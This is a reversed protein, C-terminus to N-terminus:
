AKFLMMKKYFLKQTIKWPVSKVVASNTSSSQAPNHCDSVIKSKVGNVRSGVSESIITVKLMSGEAPSSLLSGHNVKMLRYFAKTRSSLCTLPSIISKLNQSDLRM